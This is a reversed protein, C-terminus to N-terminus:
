AWHEVRLEKGQVLTELAGQIVRLGPVHQGQLVLVSKQGARRCTDSTYGPFPDCLYAWGLAPYTVSIVHLLSWFAAMGEEPESRKAQVM